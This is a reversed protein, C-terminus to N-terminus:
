PGTPGYRLAYAGLNTAAAASTLEPYPVDVVSVLGINYNEGDYARGLTPEDLYQFWQCGIFAPNRLVSAVYTQYAKARASQSATPGLGPAFLGRDTAGFDFEGVILPKGLAAASAWVTPDVEPQYINYSLVDCNQAAEQAVEPPPTGAFRCGLYLAGPDLNRLQASIVSFYRGAFAECFNVLDPRRAEPPGSLKLIPAEMSEWSPFTTGWQRNLSDITEYRQALETILAAKAPSGADAALAGYALGFRGNEEGSGAPGTWPLENDVFWGVCWPDKVAGSAQEELQQSVLAAFGPAFVDPVTGAGTNVTRSLGGLSITSVYPLQRLSKIDYRSWNGLTNFGWADLRNIAVQAAQAQWNAGYKEMRNAGFFDYTKATLGAYPGMVIDSDTDYFPASSGTDAPRDAFMSERGTVITPNSYDVCDCGLSFFLHGQPSVFWWKGAVEATRFRGTAPLSPGGLWGGYADVNSRTGQQADNAASAQLASVSAMKGSWTSGTFQGFRDVVGELRGADPQLRVGTVILQTPSPPSDLFIQWRVIHTADVSNYGVLAQGLPSPPLTRMGYSMPAGLLSCVFPQAPGPLAMGSFTECHHTGDALPSDDIRVNFAVPTSGPNAIQLTFALNTWNQPADLVCGLNPWASPLFTACLNEGVYASQCRNTKYVGAWPSAASTRALLGM